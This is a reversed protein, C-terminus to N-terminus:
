ALQGDLVAVAKAWMADAIPGHRSMSLRKRADGPLAVWHTECVRQGPRMVVDCDSVQCSRPTKM